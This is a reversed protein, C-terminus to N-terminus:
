PQGSDGLFARLTGLFMEYPDAFNILLVAALVFFTAIGKLSPALYNIAFQPAARNIFGLALDILLSLALAPAALRVALLVLAGVLSLVDHVSLIASPMVGVPFRAYGEVWAHFLIEHGGAAIFVVVAAHSLFVGLAPDEQHTQPDLISANSAGRLFDIVAGAARYCDFLMRLIIAVFGGIIAEKAALLLFPTWTASVTGQAALAPVFVLGFLAGYAIRMRAPALAGGFLPTFSVLPLLRATALAALRAWDAISIDVLPTPAQM